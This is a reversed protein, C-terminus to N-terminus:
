KAKLFINNITCKFIAGAGYLDIESPAGDVSPTIQMIGAAYVGNQNLFTIPTTTGYTSPYFTIRKLVEAPTDAIKGSSFGSIHGFFEVDGRRNIRYKLESEPDVEATIPIDVWATSEDFRKVSSWVIGGSTGSTNLALELWWNTYPKYTTNGIVVQKVDSKLVLYWNLNSEKFQYLNGNFVIYGSSVISTDANYKCGSFIVADNATFRGDQLVMQVISDAIQETVKFDKDLWTSALPFDPLEIYNLKDM